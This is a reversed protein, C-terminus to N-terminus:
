ISKFQKILYVERIIFKSIQQTFGILLWKFVYLITLSLSLSFTFDHNKYLYVSTYMIFIKNITLSDLFYKLFNLSSNLSVSIPCSYM